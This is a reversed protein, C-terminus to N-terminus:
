FTGSTTGGDLNFVLGSVYSAQDSCLYHVADAVEDARAFRGMPAKAEYFSRDRTGASLLRDAMPTEVFSPCVVNSRVGSRAFDLALTRVLGIVGHKSACYAGYGASGRVGADSAIAVFSGQGSAILADMGYKALLFVSTLNVDIMRSWAALDMERVDGHTAIGAACVIASTGGFRATVADVLSRVDSESAANGGVAICDAGNQSLTEATETLRVVDLDFLALAHGQTALKQAIALGIGSAAGTVISIPRTQSKTM